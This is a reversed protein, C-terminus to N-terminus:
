QFGCTSDSPLSGWPDRSSVQPIQLQAHFCRALSSPLHSQSSVTSRGAGGPSPGPLGPRAARSPFGWVVGLTYAWFTPNGKGFKSLIWCPAAHTGGSHGSMDHITYFHGLSTYVGLVHGRVQVIQGEASGLAGAATFHGSLEFEYTKVEGNEVQEYLVIELIAREKAVAVMVFQFLLLLVGRMKNSCSYDTPTTAM